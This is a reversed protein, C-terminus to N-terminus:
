RGPEQSARTGGITGLHTFGFGTPYKLGYGLSRDLGIHATWISGVAAATTNGTWTAMALLLLPLTYAHIVNYTMAGMRPGALYGAMSLDPALFLLILLLWGGELQTYVLLSLVLVALGEVRLWWRIPPDVV